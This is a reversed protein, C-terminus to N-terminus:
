ASKPQGSCCRRQHGMAKDPVARRCLLGKGCLKRANQAFKQTIQLAVSRRPRRGSNKRVCYLADRWKTAAVPLKLAITGLSYHGVICLVPWITWRGTM